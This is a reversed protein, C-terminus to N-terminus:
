ITPVCRCGRKIVEENPYGLRWGAEMAYIRHTLDEGTRIIQVSLEQNPIDLFIIKEDGWIPMSKQYMHYCQHFEIKSFYVTDM